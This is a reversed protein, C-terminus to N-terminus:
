MICIDALVGEGLFHSLAMLLSRRFLILAEFFSSSLTGSKVMCSSFFAMFFIFFFPAAPGSLMGGIKRFFRPSVASWSSRAIKLM